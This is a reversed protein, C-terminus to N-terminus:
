KERNLEFGNKLASQGFKERIKDISYQLKQAKEERDIEETKATDEFFSLQSARKEKETDIATVTLARVGKNLNRNKMFLELARNYINETIDTSPIKVQRTFTKFDRERITLRVGNAYLGQKRLRRGVDERLSYIAPKLKDLTWLDESYTTGSGVSKPQRHYYFSKVPSNDLGAARKRLEEGNRGLIESLYEVDACALDGITKIGCDNLKIKTKGGVFILQEVPLPWLIDKFNQRTIVTTADPKKYDSGMKAFTKNFSVGVSITIGIEKKVRERIIDALNKPSEAFFHYTTTVDLWSEDISFPEVLDTYEVYIENIKKSVRSYKKHHPPLVILNPCKAMAQWITEATKIGSKKAPENKALVIGHRQRSDGGVVVPKNKLEPRDILEVSAFFSNCDCHLISKDNHNKKNEM